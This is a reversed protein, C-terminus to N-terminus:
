PTQGGLIEPDASAHYIGLPVTLVSGFYHIKGGRRFERTLVPSQGVQRFREVVSEVDEVMIEIAALPPLFHHRLSAAPNELLKIRHAGVVAREAMGAPDVEVFSMGFVQGFDEVAADLDDVVLAVCGVKPPDAEDLGRFPGDLAMQREADGATCVVLPIGHFDPGYLYEYSDPGPLYIDLVPEVGRDKLTSRTQLADPVEIAVEYLGDRIVAMKELLQIPQIGHEGFRVKIQPWSEEASPRLWTLGITHRTVAAFEEVDTVTVGVRNLKSTSMM